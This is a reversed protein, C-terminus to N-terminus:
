PGPRHRLLAAARERLRCRLAEGAADAALAQQITATDHLWGYLAVGDLAPVDEEAAPAVREQLELRNGSCEVLLAQVPKDFYDAIRRAAPALAQAIGERAEGPLRVHVALWRPQAEVIVIREDLWDQHVVHGRRRFCEAVAVRTGRGTGALLQKYFAMDALERECGAIERAIAEAERLRQARRERLAHERDSRYADIWAANAVGQPLGLRALCADWAALWADSRAADALVAPRPPPLFLVRGPVLSAFAAVADGADNAALVTGGLGDIAAGAGFDAGTAQLASAFPEGCAIRWEGGGAPRVGVPHRLHASLPELPDYALVDHLTHVGVVGPSDALVILSGDRRFLRAFAERWHRAIRLLESSGQPSLVPPADSELMGRLEALMAYPRWIVTQFDDLPAPELFRM